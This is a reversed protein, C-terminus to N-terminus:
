PAEMKSHVIPLVEGPELDKYQCTGCIVCARFVRMHPKRGKAYYLIETIHYPEYQHQHFIM